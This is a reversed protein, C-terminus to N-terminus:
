PRRRPRIEKPKALDCKIWREIRADEGAPWFGTQRCYHCGFDRIRRPKTLRGTGNCAMCVRSFLTKRTMDRLVEM